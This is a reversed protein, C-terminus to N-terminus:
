LNSGRKGKEIEREVEKDVALQVNLLREIMLNSYPKIKVTIRRDKILSWILERLSPLELERGFIDGLSLNLGSEGSKIM